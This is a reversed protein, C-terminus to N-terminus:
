KFKDLNLRKYITSLIQSDTFPKKIVSNFGAKRYQQLKESLSESTIAIAPIKKNATNGFEKIIALLEIADVQAIGDAMLILDYDNEQVADLLLRPDTFVYTDFNGSNVLVKLTTLQSVGADDAIITRIKQSLKVNPIKSKKTPEKEPEIHLPVILKVTAIQKCSGDELIDMTVNGDMLQALEMAISLGLTSTKLTPDPASTAKVQAIFQKYAAPITAKTNNVEFNLSIKGARRQNDKIELTIESGTNFTFAQALLNHIIQELRRADGTLVDPISVDKTITFKLHDLTAIRTYHLDLNDLVASLKFQSKELANEQAKLVTLDVIDDLIVQLKSNQNQIAELLREQDTNLDTQLLMSTFASVLTLPNRLEHSFNAIFKNKFDEKEKLLQNKLELVENFIISENRKQAISQLRDYFDTGDRLIVMGTKENNNIIDIDYTRDHINVCEFRSHGQNETFCAPIIEFFPHYNAMIDGTKFDILTGDTEIVIGNADVAIFQLDQGAFETQSKSIIM